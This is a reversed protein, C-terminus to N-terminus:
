YYGMVTRAAEACMTRYECFEVFKQVDEADAVNRLEAFSSATSMSAIINEVANMLLGFEDKQAYGAEILQSKIHGYDILSDIQVQYYSWGDQVVSEEDDGGHHETRQEARIDMCVYRTDKDYAFPKRESWRRQLM